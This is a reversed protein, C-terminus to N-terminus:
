VFPWSTLLRPHISKINEMCNLLFSKEKDNLKIYIHNIRLIVNMSIVSIVILIKEDYFIGHKYPSYKYNIEPYFYFKTDNKNIENVINRVFDRIEDSKRRTFVQDNPKIKNIRFLKSIINM